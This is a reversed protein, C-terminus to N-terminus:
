SRATPRPPTRGAVIWERATLYWPVAAIPWMLMMAWLIWNQTGMGTAYDSLRLRRTDRLVVAFAIAHMWRPNTMSAFMVDYPVIAALAALAACCLIALRIRM